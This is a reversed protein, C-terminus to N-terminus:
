LLVISKSRVSQATAPVAIKAKQRVAFARYSLTIASM